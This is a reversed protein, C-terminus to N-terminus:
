GKSVGKQKDVSELTPHIRNQSESGSERDIKEQFLIPRAEDQGSGRGQIRM